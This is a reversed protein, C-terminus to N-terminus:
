HIFLSQKEWLALFVFEHMSSTNFMYMLIVLIYIYLSMFMNQVYM